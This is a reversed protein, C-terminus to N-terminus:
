TCTEPKVLNIYADNDDGWASSNLPSTPEPNCTPATCEAEKPPLNDLLSTALDTHKQENSDQDYSFDVGVESVTKEMMDSLNVYRCHSHQIYARM